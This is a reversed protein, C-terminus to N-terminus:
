KGKLRAKKQQQKGRLVPRWRKLLGVYKVSVKHVSAFVGDLDEEDQKRKQKNIRTIDVEVSAVVLVV